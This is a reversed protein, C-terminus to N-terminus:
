YYEIALRMSLRRALRMLSKKIFIRPSKSRALRMPSKTPSTGALRMPSRTPSTKRAMRMPSKM